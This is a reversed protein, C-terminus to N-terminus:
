TIKYHVTSINVVAAANKEVLPTFDPLERAHGAVPALAILGVMAVCTGTALRRAFGRGSPRRDVTANQIGDSM